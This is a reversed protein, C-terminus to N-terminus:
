IVKAEAATQKDGSLDTRNIIGCRDVFSRHARAHVRVFLLVNSLDHLMAKDTAFEANNHKRASIQAVIVNSISSRSVKGVHWIIETVVRHWNRHLDMPHM